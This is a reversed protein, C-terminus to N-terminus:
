IHIEDFLARERYVEVYNVGPMHMVEEKVAKAAKRGGKKFTKSYVYVTGDHSKVEVDALNEVLATKVQCALELNCMCNLSYTMPTFRKQNLTSIIIDGAEATDMHLLNLTLDYLNPDELRTNYIKEFWSTIGENSLLDQAQPTKAETAKGTDPHAIVLVKLAHSIEQFIPYGLYGCFVMRDEGMLQCLKQELLSVLKLKKKRFLHQWLTQDKVVQSFDKEPTDYDKAAAKILDDMAVLRYGLRMATHEAIKLSEQSYKSVIAVISM